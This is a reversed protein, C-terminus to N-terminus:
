LVLLLLPLPAAPTLRRRDTAARRLLRACEVRCLPRQQLADLQLEGRLRLLTARARPRVVGRIRLVVGKRLRGGRSQEKAGRRARLRLLLPLRLHVGHQHRAGAGVRTDARPGVVDVEIIRVKVRVLAEREAGLRAVEESRLPLSRVASFLSFLHHLVVAFAVQHDDGLRGRPRWPWLRVVGPPGGGGRAAGHKAGGVDALVVECIVAVVVVRRQDARAAVVDLAAILVHVGVLPGM